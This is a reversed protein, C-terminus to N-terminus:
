WSQGEPPNSTNPASSPSPPTQQLRQSSTFYNLIAAVVASLIVPWTFPQGSMVASIVAGIVAVVLGVLGTELAVPVGSLM